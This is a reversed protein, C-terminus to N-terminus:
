RQPRVRLIEFDGGADIERNGHAVYCHGAHPGERYAKGYAWGAGANGVRVPARCVYLDTRGQRGVVAAGSWENRIWEATGGAAVEFTAVREVKGKQPIACSGGETVGPHLNGDALRARCLAGGSDPDLVLAGSPLGGSTHPTWEPQAHAAAALLVLALGFKM